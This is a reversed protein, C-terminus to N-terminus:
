HLRVGGYYGGSRRYSGRYESDRPQRRRLADVEIEVERMRDDEQRRIEEVSSSKPNESDRYSLRDYERIFEEFLSYEQDLLENRFDQNPIKRIWSVMRLYLDYNTMSCAARGQKIQYLGRIM